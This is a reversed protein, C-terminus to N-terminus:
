HKIIEFTKGSTAKLEEAWQVAEELTVFNKTVQHKYELYVTAYPRNWVVNNADILYGSRILDLRSSPCADWCGSEYCETYCGNSYYGESHYANRKILGFFTTKRKEPLWRYSSQRKDIIRIGIIRSIDFHDQIM